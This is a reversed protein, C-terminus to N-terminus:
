IRHGLSEGKPSRSPPEEPNIVSLLTKAKQNTEDWEKEPISHSTIGGGAYLIYKDSIIEMCRLNVFLSVQGALRWPGLYGTYYRRDYLEHERIYEDALDKPLGCVAPTPHLEAVFNGLQSDVKEAPFFFSTKLHAVKGSELTEPGSTKYQHIDFNFFVDLMYRSVFAQEEIDKTSWYYEENDYKRVQTGALSVTEFRSGDSKLLVEPTAGMWTGAVPLNVFYTFANPTQDHLQFFTTGLSIDTRKTPIQRSIIVKSLAGNCIDAVTEEILALYDEKSVFECPATAPHNEFPEFNEPQISEPDTFDEFWIKPKLLIVPSNESIRFPAFVFGAEGNLQEFREMFKVNSANGVVLGLQSERPNFWAAFAIQKEILQDLLLAISSNDRM